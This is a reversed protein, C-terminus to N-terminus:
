TKPGLRRQPNEGSDLKWSQQEGAHIGIAHLGIRSDLVYRENSGIRLCLKEVLQFVKTESIAVREVETTLAFTRDALLVIRQRIRVLAAILSTHRSKFDLARDREYTPELEVPKKHLWRGQRIRVGLVRWVAERRVEAASKFCQVFRGFITNGIM